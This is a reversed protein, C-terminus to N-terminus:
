EPRDASAADRELGARAECTNRGTPKGIRGQRVWTGLAEALQDGKEGGRYSSPHVSLEGPPVQVRLFVAGKVARQIIRALPDLPAVPSRSGRGASVWAACGISIREGSCEGLVIVEEGLVPDGVRTLDLTTYELTVNLVPVRRGRVLAMAMKGPAAPRYGHYLGIAIVGTTSGAPLSQKGGMGM